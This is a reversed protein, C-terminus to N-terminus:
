PFKAAIRYFRHESVTATTDVYNASSGAATVTALTQWVGALLDDRYQVAYSRGNQATWSLTVNGTGADRVTGPVSPMSAASNPDSGFALEVSDPQGDGDTDTAFGLYGPSGGSEQSARWNSGSNYLGPDTSIVEISPGFGNATTPWPSVSSYNFDLIVNGDVDKLTIREGDNNLSGTYQGAITVGSGYRNIFGASDNTVVCYQGPPLTLNGFTFRASFPDGNPFYAGNLNIPNVGINKLEVFEVGGAGAPNYMVETIRLSSVLDTTSGPDALLLYDFAVRLAQGPAAPASNVTGSSVFLGGNGVTSAAGITQSAVTVWAGNVRRQFLLTAGSRYIRLTLDGGAYAASNVSAYATVGSARWARINAGNELGFGYRTAVGAEVTEAYLGTFFTGFERTELSFNTQLVFDATTPLPRVITPFAPTTQRLPLTSAATLQVVLSGSTANLSYWSAPSYNDRLEANSVTYNTLYNGGFSDFGSSGYVSYSRTTTSVQSAADTAQLTVTYSGPVSFTLNRTTATPANMTFGSAPSVSFAYNVAAGEPDYSATADVNLVEGLALNQSVPNSVITLVPPANTTKNITFSLDAGVQTGSADYMRFLLTNNGFALAIGTLRWPSVDFSSTGTWSLVAEPHGVCDVRFATTPARGNIDVTHATTTAAPNTLSFPSTYSSSGIFNQIQQPRTLAQNYTLFPWTSYLSPVSYSASANEEATLWAGIRAGSASLPGVMQTFYYDLQRRVYPFSYFTGVNALSGVVADDIHTSQFANDSDWHLFMWRHDTSRLYMFGNKGRNMTINDWDATYGRVAAYAAMAKVDVMRELQEPTLGAGTVTLQRFWETLASYDYESERSKIHFMDDYSTPNEAGPTNGPGYTWDASQNFLRTTGDDAMTFRDDMEYFQGDSGNPWIRNLMDKDFTESTERAIYADGNRTVRCVENENGPVGLLYLWYRHIRNHLMSGGAGDNDWYLKGHGRFPRDGPMSVVGRTLLGDTQRTFPSGTKRVSCGYYAVSDNHIFTCPFYHDSQRPFKYSFNATSGGTGSVNDLADIWHASIVVRMKRLDSSTAQNDVIWLGPAAAGGRPFQGTGGNTATALVYFEVIAGNANYGSFSSLPIQATYVGDGAVADGGAGADGMTTTNFAANGNINDLRHKVVVSTLPSGPSSVRATITMTQGAIPVVPTHQGATVVPPPAQMLRSNAAGPTGLNQPIPLLVTNGWSMDWSKVVIRPMGSVWRADFTMTYDTNATMGAADKKMHNVKGDGSGDALLHVGEADSYCGGHTGRSQWGSVNENNLTTVGANVLLNGGGSTPRLVINKLVIHGDGPLWMRVETDQGGLSVNKFVGGSFSYSQFSSKTSENSDAWAGGASNDAFPNVLELSSGNGAAQEPWEGGFKYDVQNVLNGKADELRLLDGNNGLSGNWNGLAILGPYSTNLFAINGGVVLYGGPAITTGAPITFHVADNLKWGGVNVPSAGRNYLEVFEGDREGSPPAAMIENIVIDTNRAPNNQADRTDTTDCYWEGSGSPSMQWSDRGPRRAMKVASRVNNSADILYLRVEGNSDPFFNVNFSVLGGNAPVTGSLPVKDSFNLTSALWFAAASQAVTASNNRLEVWDVRGDAAFHFENLALGTAPLAPDAIGPSGGNNTSARWVRYDDIGRNEDALVLSHGTGDPSIPWLGGDSYTVTCVVVGNRDKLTVKDGSNSLSTLASWPGFIRVAAPISPYAARTAADTASSIIIREQPKLFHAQTSAANFNPFTYNVGDSFQWKEMDLPTNAINWVEIFEPKGALPQYMIESFVVQEAKIAPVLLLYFAFLLSRVFLRM